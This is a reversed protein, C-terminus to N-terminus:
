RSVGSPKQRLWLELKGWTVLSRDVRTLVEGRYFHDFCDSVAFDVLYSVNMGPYQLVDRSGHWLLLVREM